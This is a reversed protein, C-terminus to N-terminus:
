DLGKVEGEDLKSRRNRCAGNRNESGCHHAGLVVGDIVM